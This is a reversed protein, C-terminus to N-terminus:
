IDENQLIFSGKSIIKNNNLKKVNFNGKVYSGAEVRIGKGIITDIGIVTIGNLIQEPFEKNKIQSSSDGIEAKDEITNINKMFEKSFPMILSNIIIANSGIKNNNMVVSNIIEANKKIRVGPFIISNEVYGSVEVGSSIFSNIVNGHKTITSNPNELEIDSLKRFTNLVLENKINRILWLNSEYLQMLNNNFIFYGPIDIIDDFNSHLTENFLYSSFNEKWRSQFISNSLIKIFFNRNVIFLDVPTKDISIKTITKVPKQILDAIGEKEFIAIYSMSSIILNETELSEILEIFGEVSNELQVINIDVDYLKSRLVPFIPFYKKDLIIFKNEIDQLNLQSMHYDLFTYNGWFPFISASKEKLDPINISLGTEIFIVSCKSM